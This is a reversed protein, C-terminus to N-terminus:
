LGNDSSTAAPMSTTSTTASQGVIGEVHLAKQMQDYIRADIEDAANSLQSQEGVAVLHLSTIAIDPVVYGYQEPQTPRNEIYSIRGFVGPEISPLHVLNGVRLPVGQPVRVRAVGGGLGEMAAVVNPGSIFTTATFGPTTVLQVFSYTPATHVVLGIVTDSGAFVPAGVTIGHNSGRDLQLLDYPLESPRALVAAAVRSAVPNGLLRRLQANEEALRQQTVDTRGAVLLANELEKIEAILAQRDRVYSPIAGTSDALWNSTVHIPYLVVASVTSMLRPLLLGVGILLASLVVVQVLRRRKSNLQSRVKM